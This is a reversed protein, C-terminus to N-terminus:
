QMAYAIFRNVFNVLVSTQWERVDTIHLSLIFINLSLGSLAVYQLTASDQLDAVSHLNLIHHYFFLSCLIHHMMLVVKNREVWENFMIYPADDTCSQETGGM